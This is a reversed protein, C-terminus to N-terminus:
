PHEVGRIIGFAWKDLELRFSKRAFREDREPLFERPAGEELHLKVAEALKNVM